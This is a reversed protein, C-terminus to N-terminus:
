RTPADEVQTSSHPKPREDRTSWFASGVNPILMLVVITSLLLGVLALVFKFM